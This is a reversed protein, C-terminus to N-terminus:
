EYDTFIQKAPENNLNGLAVPYFSGEIIGAKLEANRIDFFLSNIDKYTPKIYSTYLSCAEAQEKDNTKLVIRTEADKVPPPSHRQATDSTRFIIFLM